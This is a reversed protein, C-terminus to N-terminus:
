NAKQVKEVLDKVGQSEGRRLVLVTEDTVLVILDDVGSLVVRPGSSRVLCASSDHLCAPGQVVNGAPDKAGFDYLADWSGIDSWGLDVPVVAVREAKEMVAYDISVSPSAAFEAPDPHLCIGDQKASAMAKEAAILVDPAHKTLAALYERARFLFIGGNWSFSCNRLFDQAIELNPKEVFRAVRFVGQGLPEAREIYGYGTEPRDPAIGFTVLWGDLCYPVAYRVAERFATVDTIVHDSPMVLLVAERDAAIAALAIAPATNRAAPELLIMGATAGAETLQEEILERHAANGVIIPAAFDEEQPVRQVTSQLMSHEGALNLFQKPKEPGSFPWLRTGAGGSLIVPQIKGHQVM